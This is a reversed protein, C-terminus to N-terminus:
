AAGGFEPDEVAGPSTRRKSVSAREAALTMWAWLDGM